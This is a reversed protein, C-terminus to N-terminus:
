SFVTDPQPPPPAFPRPSPEQPFDAVPAEAARAGHRPSWLLVHVTCVPDQMESRESFCCGMRPQLSGRGGVQLGPGARRAGAGPGEWGARMGHRSACKGPGPSLTKACGGGGRVVCSGM